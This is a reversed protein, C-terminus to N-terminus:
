DMLKNKILDLDFGLQNINKAGKQSKSYFTNFFEKNIKREEKSNDWIEKDYYVPNYYSTFEKKHKKNETSWSFVYDNIESINNLIQYFLNLLYSYNPKEEFDLSRTYKLFEGIESPMGECVIKTDINLKMDIIKKSVEEINKSKVKDWPLGKYLSILVYALSELDDRRSPQYMLTANISSYFLTIYAKKYKTMEIHKGTKSSRYKQAIGFDCLNIKSSDNYGVLINQPKIDCHIFYQSHIYEIIKLTQIGILCIDKITFKHTLKIDFLSKGLLEEVLINYKGNYGFTIVKPIGEYNLNYLIYAENELTKQPKKYRLELKTAFLEKTILNKCLYVNSFAGTGIRKIIQYKKFFIMNIVEKKDNTFVMSM